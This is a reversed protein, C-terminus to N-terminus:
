YRLASEQRGIPTGLSSDTVAICKGLASGCRGSVKYKDYAEREEPTPGLKRLNQVHEIPLADAVDVRLPRGWDTMARNSRPRPAYIVKQRRCCLCDVNWSTCPFRSDVRSFASTKDESQM